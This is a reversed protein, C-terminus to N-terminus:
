DGNKTACGIWTIMQKTTFCPDAGPSRSAVRRARPGRVVQSGPDLLCAQFAERLVFFAELSLKAGDILILRTRPRM